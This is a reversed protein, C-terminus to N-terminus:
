APRGASGALDRQRLRPDNPRVLVLRRARHEPDRAAVLDRARSLGDDVERQAAAYAAFDALVMFYDDGLLHEILPRFRGRTTPRSSRRASIAEIM